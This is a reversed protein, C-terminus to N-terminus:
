FQRRQEPQELVRRALEPDVNRITLFKTATERDFARQMAQAERIQQATDRDTRKEHM